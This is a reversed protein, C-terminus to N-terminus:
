SALRVFYLCVIHTIACVIRFIAFTFRHLRLRVTFFQVFNQDFSQPSITYIEENAQIIRIRLKGRPPNTKLKWEPTSSHMYIITIKDYRIAHPEHNRCNRQKAAIDFHHLRHMFKHVKWTLYNPRICQRHVSPLIWVQVASRCGALAVSILWDNSRADLKSKAISNCYRKSPQRWLKRMEFRNAITILHFRLHERSSNSHFNSFAFHFDIRRISISKKGWKNWDLWKMKKENWKQKRANLKQEVTQRGALVEM